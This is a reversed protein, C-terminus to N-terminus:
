FRAYIFNEGSFNGSVLFLIIIWLAMLYIPWRVWVPNGQFLTWNQERMLHILEIVAIATVIIALELLGFTDNIHTLLQQVSLSWGSSMRSFIYLADSLKNARFFVWGGNILIFTVLIGLVSEVKPFKATGIAVSLKRRVGESILFFIIFVGNLLGWALFTLGVGHWLGIALFVILVNGYRRM